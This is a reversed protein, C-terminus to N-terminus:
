RELAPVNVAVQAYCRNLHVVPDYDRVRRGETHYVYLCDACVSGAMLDKPYGCGQCPSGIM